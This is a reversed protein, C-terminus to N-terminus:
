QIYIFIGTTTTKAGAVYAASVSEAFPVQGMFAFHVLMTAPRMDRHAGVVGDQGPPSFVGGVMIAVVFSSM